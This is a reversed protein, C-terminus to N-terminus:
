NKGVANILYVEDSQLKYILFEELAPALFYIDDMPITVVLELLFDIGQKDKMPYIKNERESNSLHFYLRKGIASNYSAKGIYVGLVNDESKKRGFIFYVGTCSGNPFIADQWATRTLDWCNKQDILKYEISPIHYDSNLYKSFEVLGKNISKIYPYYKIM